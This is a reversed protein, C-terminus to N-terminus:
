APSQSRPVAIPSGGAQRRGAQWATPLRWRCLRVPAFPAARPLQVRVIQKSPLCAKQQVDTGRFPQSPMLQVHLVFSILSRSSEGRRAYTPPARRYQGSRGHVHVGTKSVPVALKYRDASWVPREPRIQVPMERRIFGACPPQAVSRNSSHHVTDTVSRGSTRMAFSAVVSHLGM